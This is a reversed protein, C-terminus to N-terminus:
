SGPLPNVTVGHDLLAQLFDHDSPGILNVAIGSMGFRGTRGVRHLYTEIEWPFDVNIVLNVRDIDIGRAILDSCVLVRLKFDRMQEMVKIRQIQTLGAHIYGSQWGMDTLWKTLEMARPVSNLFIMCQYFPVKSLLQGVAEFKAKYIELPMEMKNEDVQVNEYYQQVEELTPVLTTLRVIQPSKMFGNLSELLEDTFTASFAICQKTTPLRQYIYQIQPKFIDAMLKDAEDMVILKIDKANLKDTNMLAMLRGPTGVMIQCQTIKRHDEQVSLGGIFAECSLNRMCQSLNRIVDRIQIAIERTPVVIIVQPQKVSLNVAEIAIVSFVVTKGTGSKAQAILDVGLRGLPIAQLQIPSPKAYGSQGLGKLLLSNRILTSFDVDEDIRVDASRHHINSAM